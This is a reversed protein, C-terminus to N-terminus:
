IMLYRKGSLNMGTALSSSPVSELEKKHGVFFVVGMVIWIIKKM